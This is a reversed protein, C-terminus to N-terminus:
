IFYSLLTLLLGRILNNGFAAGGFGAARAPHGHNVDFFDMTKTRGPRSITRGLRSTSTERLITQM